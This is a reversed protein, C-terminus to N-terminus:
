EDDLVAAADGGYRCEGSCEVAFEAWMDMEKADSVRRREGFFYRSLEDMLLQTKEVNFNGHVVKIFDRYVPSYVWRFTSPLLMTECRRVVAERSRGRLRDRRLRISLIKSACSTMLIRLVRFDGLNFTNDIYECCVTKKSDYPDFEVLNFVRDSVTNFAYIGEIIVVRPQPNPVDTFGAEAHGKARIYYPIVDRRDRIAELVKFIADWNLSVPNDFDYDDNEELPSDPVNYFSDLPLLYTNIGGSSLMRHLKKAFTSKGSSTAGQICIIYRRGPSCAGGLHRQVVDRIADM